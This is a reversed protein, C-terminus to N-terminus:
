LCKLDIRRESLKIKLNFEPKSSHRHENKNKEKVFQIESAPADNNDSTNFTLEDSVSKLRLDM